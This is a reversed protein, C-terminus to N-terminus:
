RLASTNMLMVLVGQTSTASSASVFGEPVTVSARGVKKLTEQEVGTEPDWVAERSGPWVLGKWQGQLVSLTSGPKHSAAAALESALFEKHNARISEAADKTLM